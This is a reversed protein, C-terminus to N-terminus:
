KEEVLVVVRGEIRSSDSKTKRARYPIVTPVHLRGERKNGTQRAGAM